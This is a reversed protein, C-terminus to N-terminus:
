IYVWGGERMNSKDEEQKMMATVLDELSGVDDFSYGDQPKRQNILNGQKPKATTGIASQEVENHQVTSSDVLNRQGIMNNGNANRHCITNELDLRQSFPDPVGHPPIMSNLFSCMLNPGHSPNQKNEDWGQKQTDNMNQEANSQQRPAAQSQLDTRLVPFGAPVVAISSNNNSKNGTDMAISSKRDMLYSRTDQKFCDNSTFSNSQIESAQVAPWSDICGRFDALRSSYERNSSAVTVFSQNGCLEDRKIGQPQGQLMVPNHPAGLFSNRSSNGNMNGDSLGSSIPFVMSDNNASSLDGIHDVGNKHQLQDFEFPTPMGQINGNQNGPLIVEHFKNQNNIPNILNDAHGLQVMGSSSLGRMGLGAPTNLRDLMGSSSLSRVDTNQFQASGVMSPVNGLGNLFGMQLYPSDAGGSAAIMNAQHSAVVSIRKLYLRYKQLHSAVNERTLKEVNMMDLIRKPVAKDIGLQNVAAVFKRHLDVTWVVRTRKQTSQDENEDEKQDRKKRNLKGNQDSDGTVTVAQGGETEHCPKDSNNQEKSDTKKRRVVHQWINKLEEIRVPKLLYDCAGHSIGKMVLKTDGYASLMIVPLDMELGVLELLKFGDMDPMHVDSIVLDFNNKNERLLKLAMIAQSTTTVHYQCKRLLTELLKLCIPDDDVALVRMGLPFQDNPEVFSRDITM